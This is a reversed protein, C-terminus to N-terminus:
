YIPTTGHFMFQESVSQSLHQQHRLVDYNCIIM